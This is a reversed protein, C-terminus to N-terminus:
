KKSGSAPKSKAARYDAIAKKAIDGRETLDKLWAKRCPRLAAAVTEAIVLNRFWKENAPVITWPAEPTSTKNIADEYAQQYDDWREREQWDGVSLKWSKAADQERAELRKKQEAKTIHLFFKLVLTNSEVLLQEFNRITEYRSQWVPEPVLNHVRVVLVDEYHSRNFIVTQGHQPTRPHIRWLFDHAREEETPVKFSAVDCGQANLASSLSRIAGDKGSTDMGQLVILLGREQSAYLLSQLEAIEENLVALREEAADRTLKQVEDPNIKSLSVTKKGDTRIVQIM